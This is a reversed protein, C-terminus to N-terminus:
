RSWPNIRELWSLVRSDNSTLVLLGYGICGCGGIILWEGVKDNLANADNLSPYGFWILLAGVVVCAFGQFGRVALEIRHDLSQLTKENKQALEMADVQDDMEVYKHELGEVRQGLDAVKAALDSVQDEAM